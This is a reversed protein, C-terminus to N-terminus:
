FIVLSSLAGVEKSGLCSSQDIATYQEITKIHITNKIWM